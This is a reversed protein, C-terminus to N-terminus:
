ASAARLSSTNDGGIVLLGHGLGGFVIGGPEQAGQGHQAGIALQALQRNAAKQRHTGGIGGGLLVKGGIALLGAVLQNRPPPLAIDQYEDNALIWRLLLSM